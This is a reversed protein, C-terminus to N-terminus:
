IEHTMRRRLAAAIRGAAIFPEEHAWVRLVLWGALQLLRTSARDRRMNAKIKTRWWIANAKPWTGHKPCGHWFCGDVFVAVRARPFVLDARSRIGSIPARDVFYRHGESHLLSRIERECDTDRRRTARM